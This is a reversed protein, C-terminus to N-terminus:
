GFIHADEVEREATLTAAIGHGGFMDGDYYTLHTQGDDGFSAGDLTVRGAFSSATIEEENENRWDNAMEFMQEALLVRLAYENASLWAFAERVATPVAGRECDVSIEVRTGAPTVLEGQWENFRENWVLRGLVPDDFPEM